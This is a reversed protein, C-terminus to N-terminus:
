MCSYPYVPIHTALFLEERLVSNYLPSSLRIDSMSTKSSQSLEPSRSNHM